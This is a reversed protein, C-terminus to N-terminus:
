VCNMCFKLTRVLKQVHCCICLTKFNRPNLSTTSNFGKFEKQNLIELKYIVNDTYLLVTLIVPFTCIPEKVIQLLLAFNFIYKLTIDVINNLM